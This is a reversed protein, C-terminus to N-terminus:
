AAFADCGPFTIASTRASRDSAATSATISPGIGVSDIGSANRASRSIPHFVGTRGTRQVAIFARRPFATRLLRDRARTLQASADRRAFPEWELAFDRDALCELAFLLLAFLALLLLLLAFFVELEFLAL